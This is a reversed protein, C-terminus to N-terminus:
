RVLAALLVAALGGAVGIVAGALAIWLNRRYNERQATLGELKALRAELALRTEELARAPIAAALAAELRDLRRALEGPTPPDTM